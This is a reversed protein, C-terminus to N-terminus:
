KFKFNSNFHRRGVLTLRGFGYLHAGNEISFFILARIQHRLQREFTEVRMSKGTKMKNFKTKDTSCAGMAGTEIEIHGIHSHAAHSVQLYVVVL